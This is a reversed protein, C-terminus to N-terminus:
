LKMRQKRREVENWNKGIGEKRGKVRQGERGRAAIKEAAHDMRMVQLQDNQGTWLLISEMLGGGNRGGRSGRLTPTVYCSVRDRLSLPLALMSTVKRRPM